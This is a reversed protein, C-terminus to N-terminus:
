HSDNLTIQRRPQADLIPKLTKPTDTFVGEVGWALLEHMQDTDNVTYVLVHRGTSKFAAVEEATVRDGNVNITAVTLRDAIERWDDPKDWILYGRPWEPAERKAVELAEISFSSIFPPPADSPWCAKLTAMVAMATEVDRNPAVKIEVNATLGLAHVLEIADELTPIPQGNGADLERLAAFPTKDVQGTGNTTRDLTDDHFLITQPPTDGSITADFEVMPAGQASAERISALTNEPAHAAAGRHGILLPLTLTLPRM